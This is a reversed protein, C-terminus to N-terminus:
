QILECSVQSVKCYYSFLTLALYVITIHAWERNVLLETKPITVKLTKRAITMFQDAGNRNWLWPRFWEKAGCQFYCAGRQLRSGRGSNVQIQRVEVVIELQLKAM